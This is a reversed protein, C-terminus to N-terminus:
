QEHEATWGANHGLERCMLVAHLTLTIRTM